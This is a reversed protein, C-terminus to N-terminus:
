ATRRSLVLVQAGLIKQLTYVPHTGKTRVFAKLRPPFRVNAARSKRVGKWHVAAREQERNQDEDHPLEYLGVALGEYDLARKAEPRSVLEAEVALVAERHRPQEQLEKLVGEEAERGMRHTADGGAGAAM